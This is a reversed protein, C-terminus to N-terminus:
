LDSASGTAGRRRPARGHYHTSAARGTDGGDRVGPDSPSAATASFNLDPTVSPGAPAISVSCWSRARTRGPASSRGEVVDAGPLVCAECDRGYVLRAVRDRWGRWRSAACEERAEQRRRRNLDPSVSWRRFLAGGHHTEGTTPSDGDADCGQRERCWRQCAGGLRGRCPPCRRVRGRVGVEAAGHREGVAGARDDAPLRRLGGVLRQHQGVAVAVVEQAGALDDDVLRGDRLTSRSLESPEIAPVTLM